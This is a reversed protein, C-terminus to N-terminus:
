RTADRAGDRAFEQLLQKARDAAPRMFPQASQKSTGYEVYEAYEVNTGVVAAPVSEDYSLLRISSRLRGTDVPCNDKAENITEAATKQVAEKSVGKLSVGLYKLRGSLAEGGVITVKFSM